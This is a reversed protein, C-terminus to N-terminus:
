ERYSSLIRRISDEPNTRLRVLDRFLRVADVRRTFQGSRESILNVKIM